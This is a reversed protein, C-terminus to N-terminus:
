GEKPIDWTKVMFLVAAVHKCVRNHNRPDRITPTAATGRPKGDLYGGQQAHHEPGRWQWAPCSCTVKLEMKSLKTVTGKRYAKLKVVKPGNGADVMFLWRLNARDARKLKVACKSAKSQVDPSIGQLIEGLKAATRVMGPESPITIERAFRLLFLGAVFAAQESANHHNPRDDRYPYKTKGTGDYPGEGNFGIGDHKDANDERVDIHSRDKLLDDANDIRHINEDQKEPERAGEGSPKSLTASGPIGPDLPM